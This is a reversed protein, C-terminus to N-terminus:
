ATTEHQVQILGQEQMEELLQILERLCQDPEVDYEQLLAQQIDSVRQPEQVLEWIFAGVANLGYYTGSSLDLIVAEGAVDSSVQDDAVSVIADKSIM